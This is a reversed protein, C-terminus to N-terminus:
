YLFASLVDVMSSIVDIILNMMQTPSTHTVRATHIGIVANSMTIPPITLSNPPSQLNEEESAQPHM